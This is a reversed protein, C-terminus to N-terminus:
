AHGAAKLETIQAEINNSEIYNKMEGAHTVVWEVGQELSKANLHVVSVTVAESHKAYPNFAHYEFRKIKPYLIQYVNHQMSNAWQTSPTVGSKWDFGVEDPILLDLRGRLVLWDALQKTVFQESKYNPPLPRGGFVRPMAGTRKIEQDWEDHLARGLQMAENDFKTTKFYMGIALDYDGRAWASLTSYSARFLKM